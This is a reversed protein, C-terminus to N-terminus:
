YTQETILVADTFGCGEDYFRGRFTIVDGEDYMNILEEFGDRFEVSFNVIIDNSRVHCNVRTRNIDYDALAVTATITYYEGWLIQDSDSHDRITDLYSLDNPTGRFTSAIYVHKNCNCYKKVYSAATSGQFQFSFKKGEIHEKTKNNTENELKSLVVIEKNGCRECSSVTKGDTSPTPELRYTEKMSHGLANTIHTQKTFSCMDCKETSYGESTCTADIEDVVIWNHSVVDVHTVTNKGCLNCQKYTKGRKKCTPQLEDVTIWDHPMTDVYTVNDNGCLNCHEYIKGKKTCTSQAKKVIVYQHECWTAPNTLTGLITLPVISVACIATSIILKKIPKRLMVRIILIILLVPLALIIGIIMLACLNSM